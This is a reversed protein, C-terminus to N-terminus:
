PYKPFLRLEEPTKPLRPPQPLRPPLDERLPPLGEQLCYLLSVEQFEVTGLQPDLHFWVELWVLGEHLDRLVPGLLFRPLFEQLCYLFSVEQFEVTGLQPDLHFWVEL